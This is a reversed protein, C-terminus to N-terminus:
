KSLTSCSWLLSQSYDAWSSVALLSLESSQKQIQMQRLENEPASSSPLHATLGDGVGGGGGEGSGGEGHSLCPSLPSCLPNQLAASLSNYSQLYPYGAQM